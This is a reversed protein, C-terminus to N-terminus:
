VNFFKKAIKEVQNEVSWVLEEDKSGIEYSEDYDDEDSHDSNCIRQCDELDEKYFKDSLNYSFTLQFDDNNRQINQLTMNEIEDIDKIKQIFIKIYENYDNFIESLNKFLNVGKGSYFPLHANLEFKGEYRLSEIDNLSINHQNIFKIFLQKYSM